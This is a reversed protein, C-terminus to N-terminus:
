SPFGEGGKASRIVKKEVFAGAGERGKGLECLGSRKEKRGEKVNKVPICSKEKKKNLVAIKREKVKAKRKRRSLFTRQRRM